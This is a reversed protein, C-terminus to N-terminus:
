AIKGGGIRTIVMVSPRPPLDESFDPWRTAPNKYTSPQGFGYLSETGAAGPHQVALFLAERDPTFCPGCMEAGVPVRFFMKSTGRRDGETELGYFGDARRTRALQRRSRHRDV